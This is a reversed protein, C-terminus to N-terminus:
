DQLKQLSNLNFYSELEFEKMRMSPQLSPTTCFGM